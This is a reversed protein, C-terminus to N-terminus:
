QCGVFFLLVLDCPVKTEISRRVRRKAAIVSQGALKGGTQPCLMPTNPAVVPAAAASMVAAWRGSLTFATTERPPRGSKAPESAERTRAGCQENNSALVRREKLYIAIRHRQHFALGLELNNRACGM